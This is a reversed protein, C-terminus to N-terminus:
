RYCHLAHKCSNRCITLLERLEHPETAPEPELEPETLEYATAPQRPVRKHTTQDIAIGHMIIVTEVFLLCKVCSTPNGPPETVPEPETLEYFTAPQRPMSKHRTEDIAICNM